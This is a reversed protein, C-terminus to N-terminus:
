ATEGDPVDQDVRTIPRDFRFGDAKMSDNSFVVEETTPTIRHQLTRTVEPFLGLLFRKVQLWALAETSWLSPAFHGRMRANYSPPNEAWQEVWAGRVQVAREDPPVKRTLWEALVHQPLGNEWTPPTGAYAGLVDALTADSELLLDIVADPRTAAELTLAHLLDANM